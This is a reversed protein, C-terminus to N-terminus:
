QAVVMETWDGNRVNMSATSVKTNVGWSIAEAYDEDGPKFETHCWQCVGIPVPASLCFQKTQPDRGSYQTLHWQILSQGSFAGQFIPDNPRRHPHDSQGTCNKRKRERGAAEVAAAEARAAWMNKSAELEKETPAPHTIQFALDTIMQKNAEQNKVMVQNILKLVDDATLEAM